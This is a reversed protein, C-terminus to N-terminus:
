YIYRSVQRARGPNRETKHWIFYLFCHLLEFYNLRIKPLGMQKQSPSSHIISVGLVNHHQRNLWIHTGWPVKCTNGSCLEHRKVQSQQQLLTSIGKKGLTIDQIVSWIPKKGPLGKLSFSTKLILSEGFLYYKLLASVSLFTVKRILEETIM